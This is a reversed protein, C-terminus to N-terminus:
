PCHSGRSTRSLRTQMRSSSSHNQQVGCLQTATRQDFPHCNPSQSDSRFSRCHARCNGLKPTLLPSQVSKLLCHCDKGVQDQLKMLGSHIDRQLVSHTSGNVTIFHKLASKSVIQFLSLVVRQHPPRLSPLFRSIRRLPVQFRTSPIIWSFLVQLRKPSINTSIMFDKQERVSKVGHGSPYTLSSMFSEQQQVQHQRFRSANLYRVSNTSLNEQSEEEEMIKRSDSTKTM